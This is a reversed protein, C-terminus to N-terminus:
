IKCTVKIKEDLNKIELDNDATGSAFVVLLKCEKLFPMPVSHWIGKKLALAEGQKLYFANLKESDNFRNDASALLILADGDLAVLLEPTKKHREMKSVIGTNNFGKVIGTSVTHSMELESIKDWYKIEANDAIPKDREKSLLFGYNAISATTIKEAYLEKM